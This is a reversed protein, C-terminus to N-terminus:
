EKRYRLLGDLVVATIILLAGCYAMWTMEAYENFLFSAIIIAYIPELNLALNQTFASMKRLALFAIWIAVITCVGSLIALMLWDNGTPIFREAPLIKLIFPALITLCILGGVLQFFLMNLPEITSVLRKNLISFYAALVASLVGLIMGTLSVQQFGFIMAIGSVTLVSLLFEKMRFRDGEMISNLITTFMATSAFCSVAISVNSYKISGFFAVWHFSMAAGIYMLQLTTSKPLRKLKGTLLLGVTLIVLAIAMRWWVLPIEALTILRGLIGTFGFLLVSFHLQFQAQLDPKESMSTPPFFVFFAM